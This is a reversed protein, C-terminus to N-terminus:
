LREITGDPRLVRRGRREPRQQRAARAIEQLREDSIGFHHAIEHIVTERVERVIERDSVCADEIPGQYILIRDPLTLGYASTRETLPTGQYLGFLTEGPPLGSSALEDPSPWDKVIIVVNDLRAALERPLTRLARYVLREFDSRRRRM